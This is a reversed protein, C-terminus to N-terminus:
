AILERVRSGVRELSFERARHRAGESWHRWRASDALVSETADVLEGVTRWCVGCSDDVVERHGGDDFVLPVVGYSMAEVTAMGFHEASEPHRPSREFGMAHWFVAARRYLYELEEQPINIAFVITKGAADSKLTEIYKRTKEDDNAGGALVLRCRQRVDSSLSTFARILIDHRKPNGHGAIFRSVSLITVKGAGDYLPGERQKQVPINVFPYIVEADLNWRALCWHKAYESYVVAQYDGLIQKRRVARSPHRIASWPYPFQVIAYSRSARSIPPIRNTTVVALDFSSSTRTFEKDDMKLMPIDLHIGLHHLRDDPPIERGAITVEYQEALVNAVAFLYREGGGLTLLYPDYALAKKM